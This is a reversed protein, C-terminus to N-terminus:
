QYVYHAELLEGINRLTEPRVEGERLEDSLQMVLGRIRAHQLLMQVVQKRDQLDSRHRALVPLLM